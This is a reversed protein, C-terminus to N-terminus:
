VCPLWNIVLGFALSLQKQMSLVDPAQDALRSFFPKREDRDREVELFAPRFHFQRQGPALLKVVLALVHGLPVCVPLHGPGHASLM